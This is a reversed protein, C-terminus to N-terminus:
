QMQQQQRQQMQQQQMQRQELMKEQLTQRQEETFVSEVKAQLLVSLATMEGTLDGLKEAHERIAAEDYDPGVQAQLQQQVARAEGELASIEAQMDKLIDRIETKQEESLDILQALQDVQDPGATTQQAAAPLAIFLALLIAALIPTKNM